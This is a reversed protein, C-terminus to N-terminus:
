FGKIVRALSQQQELQAAELLNKQKKQALSQDLATNRLADAQTQADAEAQSDNYLGLLVAENSGSGTDGGMGQASFLTKQRAVARRLAALRRAEATQADAAIQAKQAAVDQAAAQEDQAQREKLQTLAQDQQNVLKTYASKQAAVDLGIGVLAAPLGAGSLITPLVSTLSGM